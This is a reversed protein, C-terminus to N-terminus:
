RVRLGEDSIELGLEELRRRLVVTTRAFKLLHNMSSPDVAHASAAFELARDKDGQLLAVVCRGVWAFAHDQEVMLVQEFSRRALNLADPGTPSELYLRLSLLGASFMQNALFARSLGLAEIWQDLSQGSLLRSFSPDNGHPRCLSRKRLLPCLVLEVALAFEVTAELTPHCHDLFLDEGPAAGSAIRFFHEEVDILTAHGESAVEKIAGNILGTARNPYGDLELARRYCERAGSIDSSEELLRARVFQALAVGPDVDILVEIRPLLRPARDALDSAALVARLENLERRYTEREEPSLPRSFSSFSPAFHRLNCTQTLLLVLVQSKRACAVLTQLHDKFRVRGRDREAESLFPADAVDLLGASPLRAPGKSGLSTQLWRVLNLNMLISWGRGHRLEDCYPVQFDNHGCSVLLVDPAFSLARTAVELVDASSDAARALNVVELAMSPGESSLHRELVRGFSFYPFFPFGAATSEGVVVMRFVDKGPPHLVLRDTSRGPNQEGAAAYAAADLRCIGGEVEFCKQPPDGIGFIRLFAEVLALLLFPAAVGAGMLLFRRCM